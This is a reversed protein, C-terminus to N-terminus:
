HWLSCRRYTNLQTTPRLCISIRKMVFIYEPAKTALRIKSQRRVEDGVLDDRLPRQHLCGTPSTIQWDQRQLYM